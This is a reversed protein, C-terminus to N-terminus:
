MGVNKMIEGVKNWDGIMRKYTEIQRDEANVWPQICYKVGIEAHSDAMIKANDICLEQQRLWRIVALLKWIWIM